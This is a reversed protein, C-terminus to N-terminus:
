ILNSIKSFAALSSLAIKILTLVRQLCLMAKKNNWVYFHCSVVVFFWVGSSPIHSLNIISLILKPLCVDRLSEVWQLILILKIHWCLYLTTPGVNKVLKFGVIPIDRIKSWFINQGTVGIEVMLGLFHM